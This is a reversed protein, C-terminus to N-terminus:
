EFGMAEKVLNMKETSTLMELLKFAVDPATQPCYSTIVNKDVVVPENIVNVGFGALERQKYGGRLHYTTAKRNKLIGSKALAFAAVCVTAIPKNLKDFERILELTKEDYAENYFGYEEFGGPIALAAYDEVNVDNILTDMTVPVGFTSTVVKNFGCTEVEIDCEYDDRAWGMIDIFVSFEMTEFANPCLLLIKM